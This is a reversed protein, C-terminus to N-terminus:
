GAPPGDLRVVPPGGAAAVVEALRAEDRSRPAATLMLAGLDDGPIALLNGVLTVPEGDSRLFTASSEYAAVPRSERWLGDFM